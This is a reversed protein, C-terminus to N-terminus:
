RLRMWQKTFMNQSQIDRHLFSVNPVNFNPGKNSLLTPIHTFDFSVGLGPHCERLYIIKVWVIGNISCYRRQRRGSNFNNKLNKKRKKKKMMFLDYSKYFFLKNSFCDWLVKLDFINLWVNFLHPNFVWSLWRSLLLTCIWWNASKTAFFDSIVLPIWLNLVCALRCISQCNQYLSLPWMAPQITLRCNCSNPSSCKETKLLSLLIFYVRSVKLSQSTSWEM